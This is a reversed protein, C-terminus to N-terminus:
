RLVELIRREMTGKIEERLRDPDGGFMAHVYLTRRDPSVELSLTGPTLTVSCALLTIELDTSADLPIAIVAPRVPEGIGLVGKVVKVSSVWIEKLLWGTYFFSGWFLRFYRQGPYLPKAIWLVLFSLIFGAAFGTLSFDGNVAMWVMALLVNFLFLSM